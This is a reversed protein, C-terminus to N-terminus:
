GKRRPDGILYHGTVKKFADSTRQGPQGDVTLFIGPITNLYAQLEEAHPVVRSTASYRVVPKDQGWGATPKGGKGFSITGREAMRRLLVAAGAQASVASDSFRGDAVYKGSTYNNSFSWLYPSLVHPHHMRYGFGNYGELKFLTGGVTWDKWRQLDRSQLADASSAEWTFPPKGTKPRGAPVHTTRATLPDGNHLHSKFSQSAEMNHIVAAVYWPVGVAQQVKSYRPKNAELKSVIADVAAKREPRIRCEDFLRAYEQSLQPSWSVAAM